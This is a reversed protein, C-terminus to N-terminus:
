ADRTAIRADRRSPRDIHFTVSTLAEPPQRRFGFFITGWDHEYVLSLPSDAPAHGSPIDLRTMEGFRALVDRQSVAVSSPLQLHLMTGGTAPPAVPEIWVVRCLERGEVEAQFAAYLETSAGDDASLSVGLRSEVEDRREPPDAALVSLADLLSSQDTM